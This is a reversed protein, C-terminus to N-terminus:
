RPSARERRRQSAERKLSFCHDGTMVHLAWLTLGGQLEGYSGCYKAFAKELLLVWLEGDAPQAFLPQGNRSDCPFFDDVCVRMWAQGVVDWLRLAYKGRPSVHTQEFLNQLVGPFEALCAAAALLWCDGLAGQAIDAPQIGDRVLATGRRQMPQLQPGRRWEAHPAAATGLSKSSAPFESDTFSFCSLHLCPACARRTLGSLARDGLVQICPALYTAASRFTLVFPACAVNIYWRTRGHCLDDVFRRASEPTPPEDSTRVGPM